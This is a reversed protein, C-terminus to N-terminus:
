DLSVVFKKYKFFKDGDVVSGAPQRIVLGRRHLQRLRERVSGRERPDLLNSLEQCNIPGHEEIIDLTKKLFRPLNIVDQKIIKAPEEPDTLIYLLSGRVLKLCITLLDLVDENPDKVIVFRGRMLGKTSKKAESILDKIIYFLLIRSILEVGKFDIILRGGEPLDGSIKVVESVVQSRISRKNISPGHEQLVKYIRSTANNSLGPKPEMNIDKRAM